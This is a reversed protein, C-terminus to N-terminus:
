YKLKVLKDLIYKREDESETKALMALLTKTTENKYKTTNKVLIYISGCALLLSTGALIEFASSKKM